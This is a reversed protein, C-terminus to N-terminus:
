GLSVIQGLASDFQVATGFAAGQLTIVYSSADASIGYTVATGAPLTTLTHGDPTSLTGGPTALTLSAPKSGPAVQNLVFHITGLNQILAMREEDSSAYGAPVPAPEITAETPAVEVEPQTTFETGLVQIVSPAASTGGDLYYNAVSFGMLITGFAGLLIGVIPALRGTADGRRQLALAFAGYSIASIGVTSAVFGQRVGADTIPFVALGFALLGLALSLWGPWNRKRRPAYTRTTRVSAPRHDDYEPPSWDRPGAQRM